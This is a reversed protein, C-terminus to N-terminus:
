EILDDATALLTPPVTLGLARATRLNIVLEFKVPNQVPLDGPKEGRLIRDVYSASRRFADLSDSGYSVLGGDTAFARGGMMAPLRYRVTLDVIQRRYAATFGDPLFMLGAGPEHALATVAADIESPERVHAAVIDVGLRQAAAEASRFFLEAFTSIPNFVATVRSVQPAIEKILELYKGGVTAELNTFGTTNGGPRAMSAVFGREVPESVGTFVIPVMRTAQQAATLAPGGNTVIVEPGLRLVQAVAVRAKEPNSVGWRYDIALNRGVTWGLKALNQEFASAWDRAVDDTDPNIMLVGIWRVRDQQARVAVPWAAAASGLLTIFDRRKVNM